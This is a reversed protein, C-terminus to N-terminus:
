EHQRQKELDDEKIRGGTCTESEHNRGERCGNTAEDTTPYHGPMATQAFKKAYTADEHHEAIECYREELKLVRSPFIKDVESWGIQALPNCIRGYKKREQSSKFMM